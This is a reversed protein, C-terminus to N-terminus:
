CTEGPKLPYAYRGKEVPTAWAFPHYETRHPLHAVIEANIEHAQRVADAYDAAPYVEDPGSVHVTWEIIDAM